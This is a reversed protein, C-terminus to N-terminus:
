KLRQVVDGVPAEKAPTGGWVGWQRLVSGFKESGCGFSPLDDEELGGGETTGWGQQPHQGAQAGGFGVGARVLAAM